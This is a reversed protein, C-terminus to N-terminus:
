STPSDSTHLAINTPLRNTLLPTSSGISENRFEEFNTWIYKQGAITANGITPSKGSLARAVQAANASNSFRFILVDYGSGGELVLTNDSGGSSGDIIIVTDNGGEGNITGEVTGGNTIIDNGGAGTSEDGMINKQIDGYNTIIDAGGPGDNWDGAISATVTGYNTITDNGGKGKGRDDHKASGDGDIDVTFVGVTQVMVDDGLDGDFQDDDNGTVPPTVNCTLSNNRANGDACGVASVVKIAPPILVFAFAMIWYLCTM